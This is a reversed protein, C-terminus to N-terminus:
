SKRISRNSYYLNKPAKNGTNMEYVLRVVVIYDKYNYITKKNDSSKTKPFSKMVKSVVNSLNSDNLENLEEYTIKKLLTNLRSTNDSAYYDGYNNGNPKKRNTLFDRFKVIFDTTDM